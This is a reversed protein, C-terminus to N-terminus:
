KDRWQSHRGGLEIVFGDLNSERFPYSGYFAIIVDYVDGRDFVYALQLRLFDECGKVLEVLFIDLKDKPIGYCRHKELRLEAPM